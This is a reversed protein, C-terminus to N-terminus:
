VSYMIYRLHHPREYADTQFGWIRRQLPQLILTLLWFAFQLSSLSDTTFTRLFKRTSSPPTIHSTGVLVLINTHFFNVARTYNFYIPRMFVTNQINDWRWIYNFIETGWTLIHYDYSCIQMSVDYNNTSTFFQAM